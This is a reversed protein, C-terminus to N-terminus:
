NHGYSIWSTCLSEGLIIILEISM